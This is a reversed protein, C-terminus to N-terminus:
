EHVPDNKDLYKGDIQKIDGEVGDPDDQGHAAVAFDGRDDRDDFDHDVCDPKRHHHLIKGVGDIQDDIGQSESYSDIGTHHDFVPHCEAIRDDVDDCIGEVM